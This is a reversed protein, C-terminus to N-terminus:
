SDKNEILSFQIDSSSLFEVMIKDGVKANCSRYWDTFAKCAGIGVGEFQKALQIGDQIPGNGSAKISISDSGNSFHATYQSGRKIKFEKAFRSPIKVYSEGEIPTRNTPNRYIGWNIHSPKITTIYFNEKEKM